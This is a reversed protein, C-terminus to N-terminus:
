NQDEIPTLFGAGIAVASHDPDEELFSQGSIARKTAEISDYLVNMIPSPVRVREGEKLFWKIGNWQVSTSYPVVFNEWTYEPHEPDDCLSELYRRTWKVKEPPKGAMRIIEGPKASQAMNHMQGAEDVTFGEPKLACVNMHKTITNSAFEIGCFYCQEKVGTPAPASQTSEATSGADGAAKKALRAARAKALNALQKETAM